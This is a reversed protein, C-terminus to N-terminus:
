SIQSLTLRMLDLKTVSPEVGGAFHLISVKNTRARNLEQDQLIQIGNHNVLDTLNLNYCNKKLLFHTFAHQDGCRGRFGQDEIACVYEYASSLLDAADSNAGFIGACISPINRYDEAEQPNLLPGAWFTETIYNKKMSKSNYSYTNTESIQDTVDSESALSIKGPTFHNWLNTLPNICITDTDLHLIKDFRAALLRFIEYRLAMPKAFGSPFEINIVNCLGALRNLQLNTFLFIEEDKKFKNVSILSLELLEAYKPDGYLTYYIAKKM